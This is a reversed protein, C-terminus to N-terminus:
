ISRASKEQQLIHTSLDFHTAVFLDDVADVADFHQPTSVLRTVRM